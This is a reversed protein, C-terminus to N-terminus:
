VASIWLIAQSLHEILCITKKKKKIAVFEKILIHVIYVYLQIILLFILVSIIYM